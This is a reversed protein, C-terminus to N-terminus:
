SRLKGNIEKLRIVVRDIIESIEEETLTHDASQLYFRIGVSKKGQPIREGRYLDFIRIELSLPGAEKRAITLLKEVPTDEDLLVAIDREAAPFRSVEEFKVEEKKFSYLKELYVEGYFVRQKIKKKELLGPHIQGVEGARKGRYYISAQQYPHFYPEELNKWKINKFHLRELLAEMAGKLDYFDVEEEKWGWNPLFRRGTMILALNYEEKYGDNCNFYVKGAEFLRLDKFQMSFNTRINELLGPLLTTRMVSQEVTLPNVIRVFSLRRDGEGIGLFEADEPSMFSYNIVEHFGWQSLVNRTELVQLMLPPLSLEKVRITPFTTPIENYGYIRAVEEILDVERELDYRWPPTVFLDGESKEEVKECGLDVIIRSAKERPIDVGLFSNLNEYRLFVSKRINPARGARFLGSHVKGSAYKQILSSAQDSAFDIISPDIGREFRYSADTQIGLRRATHRIFKPVFYASELIVNETKENVGSDEGGMIGALAVPDKEDAIVLDDPTLTRETGDLLLIKEGDTASRVKITRNKVLDADFSHLPQGLEMLVYNTIDVVNSISRIGVRALYSQIFLPSPGIKVDSIFRGTYYPGKQTDEIFVKIVNETPPIIEELDVEPLRVDSNMGLIAKLERAVGLHSLCDGRNPTIELEIISDPVDIVSTFHTGAPLDDSFRLLISSKEEWGLDEGAILMTESFFKGFKRKEIKKGEFMSGAPVALVKEGAKLTVDASVISLEDRGTNVRGTVLKGKKGPFDKVELVDAVVIDEWGRGWNKEVVSAEIGAMTLKEAVREASLEMPLIKGLWNFSILM